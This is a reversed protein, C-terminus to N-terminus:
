ATMWCRGLEIRGIEDGGFHFFAGQPAKKMKTSSVGWGHNECFRSFTLARCFVRFIAKSLSQWFSNKYQELASADTHKRIIQKSKQPLYTVTIALADWIRRISVNISGNADRTTISNFFSVLPAERRRKNGKMYNNTRKPTPFSISQDLPM